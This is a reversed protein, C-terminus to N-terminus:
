RHGCCPYDECECVRVNPEERENLEHLEEVAEEYTYGELLLANLAKKYSNGTMM